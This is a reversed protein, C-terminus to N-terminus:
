DYVQVVCLAYHVKVTTHQAPPGHHLRPTGLPCCLLQLTQPLVKILDHVGNDVEYEVFSPLGHDNIKDTCHINM